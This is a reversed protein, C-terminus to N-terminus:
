FLVVAEATPVCGAACTVLSPKTRLSALRKEIPSFPLAELTSPVEALVVLIGTRGHEQGATRLSQEAAKGLFAQLADGDGPWLALSSAPPVHLTGVCKLPIGGGPVITGMLPFCLEWLVEASKGERRSFWFYIM